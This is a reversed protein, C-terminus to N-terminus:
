LSAQVEAVYKALRDSLAWKTDKYSLGNKLAEGTFQVARAIAINNTVAIGKVSLTDKITVKGDGAKSVASIKIACQGNKMAKGVDSAANRAIKDAVAPVMGFLIQCDDFMNKMFDSFRGGNGFQGVTSVITAPTVTNENTATM